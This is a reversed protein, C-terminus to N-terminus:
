PGQDPIAWVGESDSWLFGISTNPTAGALDLTVPGPCSGTVSLAMAAVYFVTVGHDNAPMTLANTLEMKTDDDVAVVSRVGLFSNDVVHEVWLLGDRGALADMMRRVTLTFNCTVLVPSQPGPAGIRRLGPRTAHPFLRLLTDRLWALRDLPGTM